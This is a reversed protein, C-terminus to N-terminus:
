FKRRPPVSSGLNSLTTCHVIGDKLEFDYRVGSDTYDSKQAAFSFASVKNDSKSPNCLNNTNEREITVIRWRINADKLKELVDEVERFSKFLETLKDKLFSVPVGESSCIYRLLSAVLGTASEVLVGILVLISVFFSLFWLLLDVILDSITDLNLIPDDYNNTLLNKIACRMSGILTSMDVTPLTLSKDIYDKMGPLVIILLKVLYLFQRKASAGVYQIAAAIALVFLRANKCLPNNM